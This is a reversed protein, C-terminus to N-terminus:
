QRYGGFVVLHFSRAMVSHLERILEDREPTAPCADAIRMALERAATAIGTRKNVARESPQNYVFNENIQKGIVTDVMEGHDAM